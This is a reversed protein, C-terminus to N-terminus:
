EGAKGLNELLLPLNLLYTKGSRIVRTPLTGLRIQERLWFESIGMPRLVEAAQRIRVFLLETM